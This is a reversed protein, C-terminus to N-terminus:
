YTIEKMKYNPDKLFKELEAKYNISIKLLGELSYEDKIFSKDYKNKRITMAVRYGRLRGDPFYKSTINSPLIKNDTNKKLSGNKARNHNGASRANELKVKNKGTVAKTDSVMINYGLEPLYSKYHLTFISEYTKGFKAPVAALSELEWVYEGYKRIAKYFDPCDNRTKVHHSKANSFHRRLRGKGGYKSPPQNGHKEMMNAKGIYVKDKDETNTVKYIEVLDLPDVNSFMQKLNKGYEILNKTQEQESIEYKEDFKKINKNYKDIKNEEEDSENIDKNYKKIKGEEDSENIDKNYKKIKGEM